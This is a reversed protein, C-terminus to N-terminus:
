NASSVFSLKPIATIFANSKKSAPAEEHVQCSGCGAFIPSIALISITLSLAINKTNLTNM